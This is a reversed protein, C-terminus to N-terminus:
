NKITKPIHQKPDNRTTHNIFNIAEQLIISPLDLHNTPNHQCPNLPKNQLHNQSQHQNHNSLEQPIKALKACILTHYIKFLINQQQTQPLPMQRLRGRNRRNSPSTLSSTPSTKYLQNMDHFTLQQKRNYMKLLKQLNKQRESQEIWQRKWRLTAIHLIIHLEQLHKTDEVRQYTFITANITNSQRAWTPEYVIVKTGPPALPTCNFDHIGELTAYALLHPHIRSTRLM